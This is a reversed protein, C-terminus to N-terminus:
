ECAAQWHLIPKGAAVAQIALDRLRRLLPELREGLSREGIADLQRNWAGALDSLQDDRVLQLAVVLGSPLEEVLGGDGAGVQEIEQCSISELGLARCLAVHHASYFFKFGECGPWRHMPNNSDAIVAADRQDAILYETWGSV